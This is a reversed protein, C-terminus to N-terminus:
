LLKKGITRLLDEDCTDQILPFLEREEKRIHAELMKGLTDLHLPLDSHGDISEFLKHLQKHESVIAQILTDLSNDIGTLLAFTQEELKFHKVLEKNYFSLAYAAKDKINQPLSKY